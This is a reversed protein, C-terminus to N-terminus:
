FFHMFGRSTHQELFDFLKINENIENDEPFLTGTVKIFLKETTMITGSKCLDGPNCKM